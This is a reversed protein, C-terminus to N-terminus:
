YTGGDLQAIWVEGGAGVDFQRITGSAEASDGDAYGSFQAVGLNTITALENTWTFTNANDDYTIATGTVNDGFFITGLHDEIVETADVGNFLLSTLDAPLNLNKNLEWRDNAGDFTFTPKVGVYLDGGITIGAGDAAAASVASDALVVNLDNISVTTSNITTTTGQVILDGRIVLQGGFGGDSDGAPAPDIFMASGANLNEITNGSIKIEGAVVSTLGVIDAATDGLSVTTTGLTVSSNALEANAVGGDKITVHGSSVSFNDTDFSAIGKNASGSGATADEGTITIATGTHNVDVGEGGLISIAHTAIALAGDDTTIAKLVTDALDVNGGSDVSFDAASFAAVGLGSTSAPNINVTVTNDTVVTTIPGTGTFTLVDALLDVTDTTSSDGAISLQTAVSAEGAATLQGKDNVTFTPIQTSSGFSGAAVGTSTIGIYVGKDIGNSASQTFLGEVGVINLDSDTLSITFGSGSDTGITLNNNGSVQNDVYLKTAADQNATPDVVNTIKSTDVDVVGVGNPSLILDGNTDTTSITNGNITVNDVNLVDIKSSGDVIIASNATLTGEVHDLKDTFYKGGVVYHNAADGATETGMGIYLRDGGNSQTGSLASYAFEGAALTGPNGVVESRKIRIISAM